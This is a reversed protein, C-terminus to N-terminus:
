MVPISLQYKGDKYNYSYCISLVLNRIETVKLHEFNADLIAVGCRTLERRASLSCPKVEGRAFLVFLSGSSSFVKDQPSWFFKYGVKETQVKLENENKFTAITWASQWKDPLSLKNRFAAATKLNDNRDFSVTLIRFDEGAKM